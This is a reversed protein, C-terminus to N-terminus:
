ITVITMVSILKDVDGIDYFAKPIIIEKYADAGGGPLGKLRANRLVLSFHNTNQNWTLFTNEHIRLYCDCDVLPNMGKVRENKTSKTFKHANILHNRVLNEFTYKINFPKVFQWEIFDVGLYFICQEESLYHTNHNVQVSSINGDNELYVFCLIIEESDLLKIIVKDGVKVKM